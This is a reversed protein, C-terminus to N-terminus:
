KFLNNIKINLLYYNQLQLFFPNYNEKIMIGKQKLKDM